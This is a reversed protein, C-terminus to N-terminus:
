PLRPGAATGKVRACFTSRSCGPMRTTSSPIPEPSFVDKESITQHRAGGDRAGRTRRREERRRVEARQGVDVGAPRTLELHDVTVAHGVPPVHEVVARFRHGAGDEAHVAVGRPREQPPAEEGGGRRAPPHDRDVLEPHPEGVPQRSRAAEALPDGVEAVQRVREADVTGHDRQGVVPATRDGEAPGELVAVLQDPQREGVGADVQRRAVGQRRQDPQRAVGREALGGAGAGRREHQTAGQEGPGHQGSGHAPPQGQGVATGSAALGDAVEDPVDGDLGVVRASRGPVGDGVPDVLQGVHGGQQQPAGAVRHEGLAEEVVEELPERAGVHLTVGAGRVEHDLVGRLRDLVEPAPDACPHRGRVGPRRSRRSRPQGRLVERPRRQQTAGVVRGGGDGLHVVTRHGRGREGLQGAPDAVEGGAQGGGPDPGTVPDRQEHRWPELQGHGDVGAPPRAGGDDDGVGPQPHAPHAVGEAARSGVM